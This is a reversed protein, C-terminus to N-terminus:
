RSKEQQTLHLEQGLSAVEAELEKVQIRNMGSAGFADARRGGLCCVGEREGHM